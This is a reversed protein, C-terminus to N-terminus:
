FGFTDKIRRSFFRWHDSKTSYFGILKFHYSPVGKKFCKLTTENHNKLDIVYKKDAQSLTKHILTVIESLLM